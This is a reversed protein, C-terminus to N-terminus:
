SPRVNSLLYFGTKKGVFRKCYLRRPRFDNHVVHGFLNKVLKLRRFLQIKRSDCYKCRFTVESVNLM